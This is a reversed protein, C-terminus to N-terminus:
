NEPAALAVSTGGIVVMVAVLLFLPFKRM